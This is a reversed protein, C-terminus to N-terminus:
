VSALEEGAHAARLLAVRALVDAADEDAGFRAAAAPALAAALVEGAETADVAADAEAIPLDLYLTQQTAVVKEREADFRMQEERRVSGLFLRGLWEPEIASALRVVAEGAPQRPDHYSDLALFFPARRVVSEPALRVGAGGVM